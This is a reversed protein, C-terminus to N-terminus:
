SLDLLDERTRLWDRVKEVEEPTWGIYPPRVRPHGVFVGTALAVGKDVAPDFGGLGCAEMFVDLEAFLADLAKQLAVAEEWQGAEAKAYLSFAFEPYWYVVSSCCGRAGLLMASVLFNEAVFFSLEPLSRICKQLSGFNSGAFTYKVGILNPCVDLVRKYDDADLFRKARPINYHVLPLTPCAAHLDGFFRLLERDTLGDWCPLSVQVADAGKDAAFEIQRLIERTARGGCGVQNPLGSSSVTDIFLTTIQKFEDLDLAYFEATTGLIYIGHPKLACTRKWNEVQADEDLRYREDWFVPPGAWIGKLAQATLNENM